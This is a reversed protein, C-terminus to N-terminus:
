PRPAIIRDAGSGVAIQPSIQSSWTLPQHECVYAQRLCNFDELLRKEMARPDGQTVMWAVELDASDAVQRAYRGGWHGANRGRGHRVYNDVRKRLDTSPRPGRGWRLDAKGIYIVQATDVWKSRLINVDETPDKGNHRGAPSRALFVPPDESERFLTYVGPRASPILEKTFDRVSVM